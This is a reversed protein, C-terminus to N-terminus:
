RGFNYGALFHITQPAGLLGSVQSANDLQNFRVELQFAGAGAPILVGAAGTGGFGFGRLEVEQTRTAIAGGFPESIEIFSGPGGFLISVEGGVQIYPRVLGTPFTYRAMFPVRLANITINAERNSTSFAGYPRQYDATFHQTQYLAELRLAVKENFSAPNILLSAGFVPRLGSELEVSGNDTLEVNSQQVGAVLGAHIKTNRVRSKASAGQGQSCTNYRDFIAVLRADSLQAQPLLSQVAFCDAFAQSLVQRFPYSREEQMSGNERRVNQIIQVLETVAVTGDTKRFFYRLRSDQDNYTYLMAKGQALVQLFLPTSTGATSPMQCSEYRIGDTFGYAKLDAPLYRAQNADTAAARFLCLQAMRQGGRADVEGRLTDGGPRVIYGPRFNKQAQATGTMALLLVVLFLQRAYKKVM